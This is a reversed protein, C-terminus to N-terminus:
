STFWIPPILKLQELCTDLNDQSQRRISLLAALILDEEPTRPALLRADMYMPPVVGTVIFSATLDIVLESTLTPLVKELYERFCPPINM